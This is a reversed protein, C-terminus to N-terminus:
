LINYNHQKGSEVKSTAIRNLEFCSQLATLDVPTFEPYDTGIKKSSILNLLNLSANYDRDITAGCHPCVYTRDSLSLDEKVAGCKSCTKSSAYFTDADVIKVNNYASKYELQRRIEYFSVDTVLKSLRHNKLMGKVNLNEIAIDSYTSTLISTVKNIFDTRTNAVKHHLNSLKLSLKLYNNSKRVGNLVDEKTKPHIRKNLQRSLRTIQREYKNLIKPNEIFIGDSLTLAEKIGLDIGVAHREKHDSHKHTRAYEDDTVVVSFSAYYKSGHQSIAVGNIKGLFRLRESMKVWGLNPVKLYQHKQNANHPMTLFRKSNRNTESLKVQDGGIYFSGQNSRKKKFQPYSVVGKKLDAFFKKFAKDLNLFPQQTAYKTVELVFPFQERKIANFDKKLTYADVKEGKEYRSKWEGLAWNYALRSCGFAKKFYTKQKNNPQLEIKHAVTIM